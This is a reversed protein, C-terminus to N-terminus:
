AKHDSCDRQAPQGSSFPSGGSAPRSACRALLTRASREDDCNCVGSAIASSVRSILGSATFAASPSIFSSPPSATSPPASARSASSENSCGELELSSLLDRDGVGARLLESECDGVLRCLAVAVGLDSTSSLSSTMPPSIVTVTSGPFVGLSDLFADCFTM